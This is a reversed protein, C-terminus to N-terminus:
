YQYLQEVILNFGWNAGNLNLFNGNEDKLKIELREIKVPGFYRREKFTSNTISLHNLTDFPITAISDSIANNKKDINYKNNNNNIVNLSYIQNLTLKRPFKPVFITNRNREADTDCIINASIDSIQSQLNGTGQIRSANGYSPLPYIKTIQSASRIIADSPRNQQFDNICLHIYKTPSLNLSVTGINFLKPTNSLEPKDCSSPNRSNILKYIARSYTHNNYSINWNGLNNYIDNLQNRNTDLNSTDTEIEIQLTNNSSDTNYNINKNNWIRYGMYYGLNNTYTSYSGCSSSINNINNINSNVQCNSNDYSATIPTEYFVIKIDYDSVNIFSIRPNTNLPDVLHAQLQLYGDYPPCDGSNDSKLVKPACFSLDLNLQNIFDIPSNYTGSTLNIKTPKTNYEATGQPKTYILMSNNNYLTDFININKPINITELKISLVNKLPETLNITFNVSSNNDIPNNIYPITNSRDESDIYINSLVTQRLTPNLSDQSYELPITNNIGLRKQSMTPRTNDNFIGITHRRDTIKDEQNKDVPDRYNSKLWSSADDLEDKSEVPKDNNDLSNLIKEKADHFFQAMKYDNNGMYGQILKTFHDDIQNKDSQPNLDALDFLETNSYDDINTNLNDM